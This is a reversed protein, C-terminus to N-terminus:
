KRLERRWAEATTGPNRGTLDRLAALAARHYPSPGADDRSLQERHTEAEKDTVVRTRVVFDFRQLEPWPQADAVPLLMSFDQRLYTVDIRVLVDPLGNQQYGQSFSPLPQGPIPVEAVVTEIPLNGTNGPAHCLLCNRHHNLRVLERVVTEKKGGTERVAPGRPDPAELVDVLQPALDTRELKVIAESARKAVAPWPYRLGQTLVETYDRERRVKLVDLAANRVEEEQSFIALKALAKTSDANSVGALFKVLGRRMAATEPGCVQMLAAVRARGVNDHHGAQAQFNALDENNCNQQYMQWFIQAARAPAQHAESIPVTVQSNMAGRVVNLSQHFQRSLEHKMRCADGMTIPLGALDPRQGILAELFHDTRRANLHNIKAIQHATKELAQEVPFGKALPEQFMVEPVQALSDGFYSTVKQGARPPIPLLDKLPTGAKISFQFRGGTALPPVPGGPFPQAGPQAFIITSTSGPQGPAFGQPVLLTGPPGNPFGAGGPGGPGGGGIIGPPLADGPKILLPPAPEPPKPDPAGKEGSGPKDKAPLEGVLPWAMVGLALLFVIGLCAGCNRLRAM